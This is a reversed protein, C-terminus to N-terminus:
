AAGRARLHAIMERLAEHYAAPTKKFLRQETGQEVCDRVTREFRRMKREVRSLVVPNDSASLARAAHALSFEAAVLAQLCMGRLHASLTRSRQSLGLEKESPRVLFENRRLVLLERSIGPVGAAVASQEEDIEGSWNRVAESLYGARLAFDDELMAKGVAAAIEAGLERANGTRFPYAALLRMANSSILSITHGLEEGASEVFRRALAPVDEPRERLPPIAVRAVLRALVDARLVGANVLEEPVRNTAVVFKVNVQRAPGAGIGPEFAKGELPFLLLDQAHLPLRDFDDLFLTGGDVEELLGRQGERAVNPLGHGIGIGFLRGLPIAPDAHEFQACSIERYPGGIREGLQHVLRACGTKGTGSEGIILVPQMGRAAILLTELVRDWAPSECVFDGERAARLAPYRTELRERTGDGEGDVQEFALFQDLECRLHEIESQLEFIHRERREAQNRERDLLARLMRLRRRAIGRIGFLRHTSIASTMAAPILVFPVLVWDYNAFLGFGSVLKPINWVAIHWVTCAAFASVVWRTRERQLASRCTWHAHLLVLTAGVVLFTNIWLRSAHVAAVRNLLPGEAGAGIAALLVLPALYIPWPLWPYLRLVARREPFVLSIHVMMSVTVQLALIEVAENVVFATGTVQPIFPSFFDEWRPSLSIFWIAAVAYGAAIFRAAPDRSRAFVLVAGLVLFVGALMLRVAANAVVEGMRAPRPTLRVTVPRGDRELDVQVTRDRVESLDSLYHDRAGRYLRWWQESSRGDLGLVADGRRIGAQDAPSGASVGSVHFEGARFTGSFGVIWGQMTLPWVVAAGYALCAVVLALFAARQTHLYM